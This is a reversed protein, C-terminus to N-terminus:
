SIVKDLEKKVVTSEIDLTDQLNITIGDRIPYAVDFEMDATKVYGVPFDNLGSLHPNDTLIQFAAEMNGYEQVALDFITQGKVTLIQRM